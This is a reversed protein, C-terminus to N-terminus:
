NATETKKLLKEYLNYQKEAIQKLSYNKQVFNMNKTQLKSVEINDMLKIGNLANKITEIEIGTNIACNNEIIETFNCSKSIMPILGYNMAELVSTPFGESQSPLIFFHSNRLLDQKKEDYVAGVYTINEFNNNKQLLKIIAPLEGHDPGAIILQFNDDKFLESQLWAKVLPVIGKKHHLRSLYLIQKKIPKNLQYQVTKIGNPILVVNKFHKKLNEAEPAGVARVVQAKKVYPKEFLNFYVKKQLKKQKMSWPELMGHPVYIWNYGMKLFQYGFRTPYRWVGHTVIITNQRKIKNTLILHKVTDKKLSLVVKKCYNLEKDTPIESHEPFWIESDCNYESKLIYATSVAANWIGFNIRDIKDIINIIRM